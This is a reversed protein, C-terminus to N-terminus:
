KAIYSIAWTAMEKVTSDSDNLCEVLGDLATFRSDKQVIHLKCVEEALIPCHKAISRLVYASTKRYFRKM